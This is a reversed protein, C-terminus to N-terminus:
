ASPLFNMQLLCVQRENTAPLVTWSRSAKLAALLDTKVKVLNLGMEKAKKGFIEVAYTTSKCGTVENWIVPFHNKIDNLRRLQPVTSLAAVPQSKKSTQVQEWGSSANSAKSAHSAETVVSSADDNVDAAPLVFAKAPKEEDCFNM